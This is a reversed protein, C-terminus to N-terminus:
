PEASDWHETGYDVIARLAQNINRALDALDADGGPEPVQPAAIYTVGGADRVTVRGPCYNIYAPDLELMKRALGLNCFLLVEFDPFDTHDRDRIGQGVHLRGTIRFNRETIAFEVDEVVEAVPKRAAREYVQGPEAAATRPTQAASILLLGAAPGAFAAFRRATGPNM